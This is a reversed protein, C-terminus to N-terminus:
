IMQWWKRLAWELALLATILLLVWWKDWQTREERDLVRERPRDQTKAVFDELEYLKIADAKRAVPNAERAIDRMTELDPVKLIDEKARFNVTIRREARERSARAGPARATEEIWLRYQGQKRLPLYMRYSGPAGEQRRSRPRRGETLEITEGGPVEIQVGDLFPDALPEYYEDLATIDVTATDGVFYEEKDTFIKFRKNGGLLRYTALYRIVQEWFPGFYQDRNERRIRSISDLSSWFVHGKGFPMAAFVVLPQGRDDMMDRDGRAARVRALDIAGPRLGAKARYLWYWNWDRSLPTDGRWTKAIDEPTAIARDDLGPVISFIPHRKGENTLEIHFPDVFSPKESERRDSELAAVPLLQALPTALYEIPNRYDDGAQFAIGGGEEVFEVLLELTKKNEQPSLPNFTRWNVDGLIIVDYEFLERRTRPFQRLPRLRPDNSTPQKFQPDAGQLLVNVAFRSRRDPNLADPPPERTLYTSLFRWDWRPEDDVYLVRIRQDKVVIEHTREDDEPVADEKSRDSPLKARIKVRYTGAKNFPARLRVEVPTDEDPMAINSERTRTRPNSARSPFEYKVPKALTNGEKDAIREATMVAEVGRLAGFGSQRLVVEFLVEDGVLVFDKALIKEVWLNKGSSPNGVIVPQIRLDEAISGLSALVQQPTEGESTDRGDSILIVGALHRDHRRGFENAVNRIVAGIRTRGGDMPLDRVAEGLERARGAKATKEDGDGTRDRALSGLSRWDGDFAFFHLVFRDNWERLMREGDPALIRRVLEGRSVEETSSPRAGVPYAANLLREQEAREYRDKTRMSASSDILVVLHSQELATHTEERFPGSLILVVLLLVLTRIGALLFRPMRGSRGRERVYVSRVWFFGAIVLVVLLWAPPLNAWKWPGVDIRDAALTLSSALMNM